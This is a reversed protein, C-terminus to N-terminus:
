ADQGRSVTMGGWTAIGWIPNEHIKAEARGPDRTLACGVRFYARERFGGWGVYHAGARMTRRSHSLHKQPLINPNQTLPLEGKEFM